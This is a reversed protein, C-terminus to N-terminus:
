HDLFFTLHTPPLFGFFVSAAALSSLMSLLKQGREREKREKWGHRDSPVQLNCLPNTNPYSLLGGFPLSDNRYPTTNPGTTCLPEFVAM